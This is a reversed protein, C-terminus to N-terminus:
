IAAPRGSMPYERRRVPVFGAKQYLPLARPHDLTCTNVTLKSVNPVDWGTRVATALLWRGLGQGIAEPMLGFYALDCVGDAAASRADLMFFGAPWGDTMLTHITVLPDGVFADVEAMPRAFWDTWKWDKGVTGYLYLFWHSPPRDAMVLAMRPGIPMPPVPQTPPETMELFTVVFIDTERGGQDTTM